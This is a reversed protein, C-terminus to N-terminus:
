HISGCLFDFKNQRDLQHVPTSRVQEPKASRHIELQFTLFRFEAWALRVFSRNPLTRAAAVLHFVREMKM